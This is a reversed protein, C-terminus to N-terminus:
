GHSLPTMRLDDNIVRAGFDCESSRIGEHDGASSGAGLAQLSIFSFAPVLSHIPSATSANGHRNTDISTLTSSNAIGNM